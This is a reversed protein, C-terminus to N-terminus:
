TMEHACKKSIYSVFTLKLVATISYTSNSDTATKCNIHWCYFSPIRPLIVLSAIAWSVAALNCCKWILHMCQCWGMITLLCFYTTIQTDWLIKKESKYSHTRLNALRTKIIQCSHINEIHFQQLEKHLYIYPTLSSIKFITEWPKKTISLLLMKFHLSTINDLNGDRAIEKRCQKQLYFSVLNQSKRTKAILSTM